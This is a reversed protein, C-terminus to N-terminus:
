MQCSKWISNWKVKQIEANLADLMTCDSYIFKESKREKERKLIHEHRCVNIRQESNLTDYEGIEWKADSLRWEREDVREVNKMKM